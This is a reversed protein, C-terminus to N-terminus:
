YWFHRLDWGMESKPKRKDKNGSMLMSTCIWKVLYLICSFTILIPLEQSFFFNFLFSHSHLLHESWSGLAVRAFSAGSRFKNKPLAPDEYRLLGVSCCEFLLSFPKHTQVATTVLETFEWFLQNEGGQQKAATLCTQASKPWGSSHISSLTPKGAQLAAGSRKILTIWESVSSFGIFSHQQSVWLVPSPAQPCIHSLLAVSHNHWLSM